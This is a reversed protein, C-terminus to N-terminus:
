ESSIVLPLSDPAIWEEDSGDGLPGLHVHPAVGNPSRNEEADSAVDELVQVLMGEIADADCDVFLTSDKLSVRLPLGAQKRAVLRVVLASGEASVLQIEADSTSARIHTAAERLQAPSGSISAGQDTAVYDLTLTPQRM